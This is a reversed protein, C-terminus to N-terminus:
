AGLREAVRLKASRARSNNAIEVATPVVPRRTVARLRPTHGCICVPSEPPCICGKAEFQFLRKGLRDELSHYSIVALRGGATLLEILRPLAAELTELERNVAIRFAQFVRALSKNLDRHPVIREVIDALQRTTVVMRARRERVIAEALRRARSEEGYTRLLHVLEKEELSNILDAATPDGSQPDFRMDLPGDFRYTFGRDPDDLQLSSLGLDLLIGDFLADGLDAAVAEAEAYSANVITVRQPLEALSIRATAAAEPDRDIGYLRAQSDLRGSLARLHGGGGVTLDLYAGNPRTALLRVVEDVLVPVHSRESSVM